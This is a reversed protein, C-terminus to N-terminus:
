SLMVKQVLVTCKTRKDLVRVIEYQGDGCVDKIYKRAQEPEEFVATVGEANNVKVASGDPGLAQIAIYSTSTRPTRPKTEKKRRTRKKTEVAPVTTGTGTGAPTKFVVKESELKFPEPQDIGGGDKVLGDM